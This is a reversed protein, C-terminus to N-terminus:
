CLNTYFFHCDFSHNNFFVFYVQGINRYIKLGNNNATQEITCIKAFVYILEDMYELVNLKCLRCLECIYQLFQITIDFKISKYQCLLMFSYVM